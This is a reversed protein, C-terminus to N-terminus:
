AATERATLADLQLPQSLPNGDLRVIGQELTLRRECFWRVALPYIRHEVQTLVREALAQATDTADVRVVGQLIVPGQDVGSTVFHVSAGHRAVGAALAREHTHLGPFAPLLSPHINIMRGELHAVLPEGLIRMFGALVVLGPQYVEIRARLEREFSARDAYAKHDIVEAPIGAARAHDLGGADPRNSIVASFRAPIEGRGQADLLAKLNSGRGSILAVVRMPATM